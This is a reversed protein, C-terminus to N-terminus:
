DDIELEAGRSTSRTRKRKMGRGAAKEKRTLYEKLNGLRQALKKANLKPPLTESLKAYASGKFIRVGNGSVKIDLGRRTLRSDLDNWSIATEFTHRLDARLKEIREKGMHRGADRDERAAIAMESKSAAREKGASRKPTRTWNYEAEKALLAERLVYRDNSGNWAKGTEEDVRNVMAHLHRHETDDHAVYLAQHEALGLRLLASDMVDAMQDPTPADKADWSVILHYMPKRVRKSLAATAKMIHAAVQPEDSALNRTAIWGVREPSTRDAGLTLYGALGGFSKGRSALGIM